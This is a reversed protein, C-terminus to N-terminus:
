KTIWMMIRLALDARGTKELKELEEDVSAPQFTIIFLDLINAIGCQTHYNHLFLSLILYNNQSQSFPEKEQHHRLGQCVGEPQHVLSKKISRIILYVAFM